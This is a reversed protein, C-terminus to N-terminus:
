IDNRNYTMCSFCLNQGSIHKYDAALGCRCRDKCMGLRCNCASPCPCRFPVENAHACLMLDYPNQNM